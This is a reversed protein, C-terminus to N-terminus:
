YLFITNSFLKRSSELIPPYKLTVYQDYASSINTLMIIQTNPTFSFYTLERSKMLKDFFNQQLMQHIEEININSIKYKLVTKNFEFTIRDQLNSYTLCVTCWAFDYYIHVYSFVQNKKINELIKIDRLFVQWLTTPISLTERLASTFLRNLDKSVHSLALISPYDLKPIIEEQFIEKPLLNFFGNNDQHNNRADTHLACYYEDIKNNKNKSKRSCPRGKKTIGNCYHM